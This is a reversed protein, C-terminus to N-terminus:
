TPFNQWNKKRKQLKNMLKMTQYMTFQDPSLLKQVKKKNNYKFLEYTASYDEENATWLELKKKSKKWWIKKQKQKKNMMNQSSKSLQRFHYIIKLKYKTSSEQWQWHKLLLLIHKNKINDIRIILFISFCQQENVIWLNKLKGFSFGWRLPYFDTMMIKGGCKMFTHKSVCFTFENSNFEIYKPNHNNPETSHNNNFIFNTENPFGVIFVLLNETKEESKM